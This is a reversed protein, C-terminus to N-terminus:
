RKKTLLIIAATGFIASACFLAVYRAINDSTDPSDPTPAPTPAPTPQPTPEPDPTPTPQPEPEPQPDDETGNRASLGLTQDAPIVITLMTQDSNENARDDSNDYFFRANANITATANENDSPYIYIDNGAIEATNGSLNASDDINITMGNQPRYRVCIGGGYGSKDLYNPSYNVQNNTITTDGAINFTFPIRIPHFVFHKM